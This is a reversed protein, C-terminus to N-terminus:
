IQFLCPRTPRSIDRGVKILQVVTRKYPRSVERGVSCHLSHKRRLRFVTKFGVRVGSLASHHPIFVVLCVRM